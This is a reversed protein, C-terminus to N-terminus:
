AGGAVALRDRGAAVVSRRSADARAVPRARGCGYNSAVGMPVRYLVGVERKFREGSVLHPRMRKVAVYSEETTGLYVEGMGGVGLLGIIKFQGIEQPDDPSLPLAITSDM